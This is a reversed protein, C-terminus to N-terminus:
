SEQPDAPAVEESEDVPEDCVFGGFDDLPVADSLDDLIPDCDAFAEEFATGDELDGPGIEDLGDLDLEDLDLEDLDLEDVDGLIVEGEPGGEVLVDGDFLGHGALCEDYREFVAEDEASLDPVEVVFGDELNEEFDHDDTPEAGGETTTTSGPSTELAPEDASAIASTGIIAAGIVAGTLGVARLRSGISSARVPMEVRVADDDSPGPAPTPSPPQM